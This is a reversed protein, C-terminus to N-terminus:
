ILNKGGGNLYYLYAGVLTDKDSPNGDDPLLFTWGKTHGVVEQGICKRPDSEEDWLTTIGDCVCRPAYDARYYTNTLPNYGRLVVLQFPDRQRFSPALPPAGKNVEIPNNNDFWITFSYVGQFAIRRSTAAGLLGSIRLPEEQYRHLMQFHRIPIGRQASSIAFAGQPTGNITNSIDGQNIWGGGHLEGGIMSTM